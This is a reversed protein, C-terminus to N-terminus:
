LFPDGMMWKAGPSTGQNKILLWCLGTNPSRWLYQKSQLEFWHQKTWSGINIRITPFSKDLNSIWECTIIDSDVGNCKNKSSIVDYIQRFSKDPVWNYSAGSDFFLGDTALNIKVDGISM